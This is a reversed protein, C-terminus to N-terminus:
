DAEDGTDQVTKLNSVLADAQKMRNLKEVNLPLGAWAPSETSPLNRAWAQFDKYSKVDPVVLKSSGEEAEVKADSELSEFLPYELDFTEKKFFYDVLSQLIKIDFDNDVKGGFISEAALAKLADWPIKDPDVVERGQGM